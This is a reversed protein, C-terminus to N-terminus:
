ASHIYGETTAEYSHGVLKGIETTKIGAAALRSCFAHRLCHFSKGFICVSRALKVFELSVASFHTLYRERMEPFCYPSPHRPDRGAAAEFFVQRLAGAGLRADDFGLAVRKYSKHTWVILEDRRVSSWELRCVDGLRLGTYYSLILAWRWFGKLNAALHKFEGATFPIRERTELQDQRMEGVLIRINNAPNSILMANDVAFDLFSSISARWYGRTALKHQTQNCVKEVMERTINLLPRKMLRFANLFAVVNSSYRYATYRSVRRELDIRWLELCEGCTSVQGVTVLAVTEKTLARAKALLLLRDAGSIAVIKAANARNRDGTSALQFRDTGAVPVRVCWYGSRNQVLEPNGDCGAPPPDQNKKKHKHKPTTEVRVSSARTFSPSVSSEARPAAALGTALGLILAIMTATTM